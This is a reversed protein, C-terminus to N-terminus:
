AAFCAARGRRDGVRDFLGESVLRRLCSRVPEPRVGCAEAVPLIEAVRLAGDRHMMGLVLTRTPIEVTSIM